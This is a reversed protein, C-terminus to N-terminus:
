KLYNEGTQSVGSTSHITSNDAASGTIKTDYYGNYGAINVGARFNTSDNTNYGLGDFEVYKIKVRRTPANTAGNSTWYKVNFFVRATDQDGDAIDNGSTDCAKIVVDREMKVVPDGVAGQVGIGQDLLNQEGTGTRHLGYTVTIYDNEVLWILHPAIIM